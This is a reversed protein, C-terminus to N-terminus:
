FKYYKKLKEASVGFFYLTSLTRNRLSTYLIGENKYRRASTLIKQKLINIKINKGKIKNIIAIDEMLPINDYGGIEHFLLSAFFQGQDGYPTHTFFIRINAFFLIIKLLLNPSQIGLGFAGALNKEKVHLSIIHEDWDKPLLTDAHLFLLIEGRAINAGSNLQYARGAKSAKCTLCNTTDIDHITTAKPTDCIIVEYSKTKANKRLSELTKPLTKKEFYVPIVVSIKPFTALLNETYLGFKTQRQLAAFKRLDKIEDIDFLEKGVKVHLPKLVQLTQEFVSASFDIQFIRPQFDEKCFGILYYGGDESKNICVSHNQLADFAEHIIKADLLPIDAGVLIVKEYGKNFLTTFAHTMKQAIDDGKQLLTNFGQFYQQYKDTFAQVFVFTDITEKIQTSLLQELMLEYIHKAESEGISKALRTKVKGNIPEKTFYILAQKM